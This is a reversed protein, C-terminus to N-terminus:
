QSLLPSYELKIAHKTSPTIRFRQDLRLGCVWVISGESELIPVTLKKQRSVKENAFFDSLKKRHNMGLPKFWDGKRWTRLVLRPSVTDADIYEVTGPHHTVNPITGVRESGFRFQSFSYERGVEIKYAFENKQLPRGFVLKNRDRFLCWRASLQVFHGTTRGCLDLCSRVKRASPEIDLLRFIELIIEEQLYLPERELADLLVTMGEDNRSVVHPMRNRVEAEIRGRLSRMVASVRNLSEVANLHTLTEFGPLVVHRLANRTYALSSNSSDERFRIAHAQAYELIESKTAWLLPRIVSGQERRLPIGSLGRIGSGRLANLLVTEANDDAQHATAVADAGSGTRATEFAQYRLDRAAEQKSLGHITQHSAVDLHAVEVPLGLSAAAERVFREDGDSEAGRLHHNVHLVSLRLKWSEGLAHFLHMMAMSDVGGSVALVIRIGPVVLRQETLSDLFRRAFQRLTDNMLFQRMCFNKVM